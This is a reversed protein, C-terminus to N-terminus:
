SSSILSFTAGAGHPEMQAKQTKGTANSHKVPGRAWPATESHSEQFHWQHFSFSNNQVNKRNSLVYGPLIQWTDETSPLHHSFQSLVHHGCLLACHMVDQRRPQWKIFVANLAPNVNQSEISQILNFQSFEWCSPLICLFLHIGEYNM